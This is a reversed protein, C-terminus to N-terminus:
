LDLFVSKLSVSKVLQVLLDLFHLFNLRLDMFANEKPARINKSM